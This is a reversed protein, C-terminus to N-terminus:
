RFLKSFWRQIARNRKRDNGAPPPDAQPPCACRAIIRGRKRLFDKKVGVGALVDRSPLLFARWMLSPKLTVGHSALAEGGANYRFNLVAYGGEM